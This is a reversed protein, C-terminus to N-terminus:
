QEEKHTRYFENTNIILQFYNIILCILYSDAADIAEYNENQIKSTITCYHYWFRSKSSPEINNAFQLIVKYPIEKFVDISDAYELSSQFFKKWGEKDSPDPLKENDKLKMLEDEIRKIEQIEAKKM